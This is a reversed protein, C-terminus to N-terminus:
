LLRHIDLRLEMLLGALFWFCHCTFAGVVLTSDRLVKPTRYHRLPYNAMFAMVAVGMVFVYITQAKVLYGLPTGGMKCKLPLASASYVM